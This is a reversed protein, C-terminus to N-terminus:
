REDPNKLSVTDGEGPGSTTFQLTKVAAQNNLLQNLM